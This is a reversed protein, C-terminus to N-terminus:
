INSWQLPKLNDIEYGGNPDIRVIVWGFSSMLDSYSDRLIWSGLDDKRYLEPNFDMIINGKEWVKQIVIETYEM